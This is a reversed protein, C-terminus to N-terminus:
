WFLFYVCNRGFYLVLYILLSGRFYCFELFLVISRTEMNITQCPIWGAPIQACSIRLILVSSPKGIPLMICVLHRNFPKTTAFTTYIPILINLIKLIHYFRQISENCIRKLWNFTVYFRVSFTELKQLISTNLM